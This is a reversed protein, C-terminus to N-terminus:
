DSLDFSGKLRIDRSSAGILVEFAGPEAVWDDKDPDFFAMDSSDLTFTVLSDQGPELSMRRFGKLEKPPRPLSSKVDHVYLQVVEAGPRSGTNRLHLSVQQTGGAKLTPSAIKLDSYAFTTYSLGHGFPFLPAVNKEDFGRYGVFIGEAYEM